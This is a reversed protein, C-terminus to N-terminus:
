IIMLLHEKLQNKLEYDRLVEDPEKRWIDEHHDPIEFEFEAERQMSDLHDVTENTLLANCLNDNNLFTYLINNLAKHNDIIFQLVVKFQKRMRKTDLIHQMESKEQWYTDIKSWITESERFCQATWIFSSIWDADERLTDAEGESTDKHNVKAMVENYLKDLSEYDWHNFGKRCNTYSELDYSCNDIISQFLIEWLNSETAMDTDKEYNWFFLAISLVYREWKSYKLVDRNVQLSESHFTFPLIKKDVTNYLWFYYDDDVYESATAFHADNSRQIFVKNPDVDLEKEEIYNYIGQAAEADWFQVKPVIFNGSLIDQYRAGSFVSDLSQVSQQGDQM